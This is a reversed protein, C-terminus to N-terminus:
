PAPTTKTSDPVWDARIETHRIEGGTTGTRQGFYFAAVGLLISIVALTNAYKRRKWNAWLGVLSLAGLAYAFWVLIDAAQAHKKIYQREIGSVGKLQKAAGGGSRDAIFTSFTGGILIIFATRKVIESRFIFGGIMIVLGIIPVLIPFHNVLLHFHADSM